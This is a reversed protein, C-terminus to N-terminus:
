KVPQLQPKFGRHSAERSIRVQIFTKPFVGDSDLSSLPPRKGGLHVRFQPMSLCAGQRDEM